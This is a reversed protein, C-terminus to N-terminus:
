TGPLAPCGNEAVTIKSTSLPGGYTNKLGSKEVAIAPAVKEVERGPLVDDPVAHERWLIVVDDFAALFLTVDGTIEVARVRFLTYVGVKTDVEGRGDM